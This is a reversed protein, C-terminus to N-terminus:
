YGARVRVRADPERHEGTARHIEVHVRASEGNQNTNLEYTQVHDICVFQIQRLWAVAEALWPPGGWVGRRLAAVFAVGILSLLFAAFALLGVVPAPLQGLYGRVAFAGAIICAALLNAVLNELIATSRGTIWGRASRSNDPL